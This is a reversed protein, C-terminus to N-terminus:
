SVEKYRLLSELIWGQDFEQNCHNCLGRFLIVNKNCSYILVFMVPQGTDPDQMTPLYMEGMKCKPCEIRIFDVKSM